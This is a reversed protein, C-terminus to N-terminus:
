FEYKVSLNLKNGSVKMNYRMDSFAVKDAVNTAVKSIKTKDKKMEQWYSKLGMKLIKSFARNGYQINDNTHHARLWQYNLARQSTNISNDQLDLAAQYLAENNMMQPTIEKCKKEKIKDGLPNFFTLSDPVFIGPKSSSEEARTAQSLLALCLTLSLLLYFNVLYSEVPVAPIAIIKISDQKGQQQNAM